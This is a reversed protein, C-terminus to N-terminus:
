HDLLEATWVDSQRDGVTFFLQDRSVRFGYRHWPREPDDFRLILRPQGGGVSVEYISTQATDGVVYYITRGDSSWGPFVSGSSGQGAQVLVRILEGTGSSLLLRGDQEACAIVRGNPSPTADCPPRRWLVPDSWKEGMRGVKRIQPDSTGENTTFLLTEQDSWAPSREDDVTHTVQRSTGGQWPVVFIQRRGGVFSHFAIERGDPSWAPSYHDPPGKTLQQAEASKDVPVRYIESNGNRDSAFTLWHADPSVDFGEVVQNGVTVPRADSFRASGARPAALRWINSTESFSV